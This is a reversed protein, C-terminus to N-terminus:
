EVDEGDLAVVDLVPDLLHVVRRPRDGAVQVASARPPALQVTWGVEDDPGLGRDIAIGRPGSARDRHGRRPPPLRPPARQDGAHAEVARSGVRSRM